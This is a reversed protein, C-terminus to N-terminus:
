KRGEKLNAEIKAKFKATKAAKASTHLAKDEMGTLAAQSLSHFKFLRGLLILIEWQCGM